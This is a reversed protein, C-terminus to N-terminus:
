NPGVQLSRQEGGALAATRYTKTDEGGDEISLENGEGEYFRKM